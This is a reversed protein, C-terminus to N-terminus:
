RDSERPREPGAVKDGLTGVAMEVAAKYGLHRTKLQELREAKSNGCVGDM